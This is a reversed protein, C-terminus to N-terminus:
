FFSVRVCGCGCLGVRLWVEQVVKEGLFKQKLKRELHAVDAVDHLFRLAEVESMHKLLM